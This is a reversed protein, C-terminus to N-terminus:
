LKNEGELLAKLRARARTLRSTVTGERCNLIVATEKATYGEYYYLYLVNRDAKPLTMVRDLVQFTEGEFAAPPEAYVTKTRWASKLQDRCLNITVRIFWAKEHEASQFAPARRMFRLFVEQAIDEADSKSRLNQFAIRLVMDAYRDLLEYVRREDPPQAAM